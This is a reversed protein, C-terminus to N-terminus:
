KDRVQKRYRALTARMHANPKPPNLLMRVFERSEEANLQIADHQTITELASKQVSEVVFDTISRGALQAARAITRKMESTVRAELRESKEARAKSKSAIASM